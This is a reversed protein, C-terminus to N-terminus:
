DIKVADLAFCGPGPCNRGAEAKLLQATAELAEINRVVSVIQIECRTCQPFPERVQNGKSPREKCIRIKNGTQAISPRQGLSGAFGPVAPAGLSINVPRGVSLRGLVRCGAIPLTDSM